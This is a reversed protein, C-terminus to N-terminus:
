PNGRSGKACMIGKNCKRCTDGASYLHDGLQYLFGCYDCKLTNVNLSM